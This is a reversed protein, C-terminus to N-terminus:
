IGLYTMGCTADSSMTHGINLLKTFSTGMVFFICELTMIIDLQARHLVFADFFIEISKKLNITQELEVIQMLRIFYPKTLCLM